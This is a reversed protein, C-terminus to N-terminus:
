RQVGRRRGSDSLMRGGQRFDPPVRVPEDIVARCLLVHSGRRLLLFVGAAGVAAAAGVVRVATCLILRPDMVPTRPTYSSIDRITAPGRPPGTGPQRVRDIPFDIKDGLGLPDFRRLPDSSAYVFLSVAVAQGIPDTEIYRRTAPDFDRYYNYHLGSEYDYIQGPFRYDNTVLVTDGDPDQDVTAKGFPEYKARWVVKASAPTAPTDTMALPTGLHDGHVWHVSTPRGHHRRDSCRSRSCVSRRRRPARGGGRRWSSSCCARPGARSGGCARMPAEGGSVRDAEPDGGLAAPSGVELEQDVLGVLEDELFVADKVQDDAAPAVSVTEITHGQADYFFLTELSGVTKRVRRGFADYVYTAISAAPRRTASSWSATARRRLRPEQDHLLADPGRLHPERLRRPRLAQPRRRDGPRHPRHRDRLLHDDHRRVLGGAPPERRRRLHLHLASSGSLDTAKWLRDLEDYFYFRSESADRHDVLRDLNPGPDIPGPAGATYDYAYSRDLVTGMPGTVDIETVQYRPNYARTSLVTNEGTGADFPPFEARTRPGFPLFELDRITQTTAGATVSVTKPRLGAYAYTATTGSPAQVATVNGAADYGYSVSYRKGGLVTAEKALEGRPTYEM